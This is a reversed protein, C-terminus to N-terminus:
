VSDQHGCIWDFEFDEFVDKVGYRFLHSRRQPPGCKRGVDFLPAIIGACNEVALAFNDGHAIVHGNV